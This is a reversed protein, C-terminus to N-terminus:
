AARLQRNQSAYRIWNAVENQDPPNGGRLIRKGKRSRVVPDIVGFLEEADWESLEEPTTVEAAVLFQADHGRLMPVRCVLSAQQQWHLVTEADVRSHDLDSAVTEPDAALLDDVTEIGVAGLRESMRSGISPADVVPDQRSLYFRWESTTESDQTNASSRLSREHSEVDRRSLNITDAPAHPAVSRRRRASPVAQERESRQEFRGPDRHIVTTRARRRRPRSSNSESRPTQARNRRSRPYRVSLDDSVLDTRLNQEEGDRLKASRRSDRRNSPKQGATNAAAIWSTIRSLEYSSASLLIRQGQGTTLFELVDYMLDAPHISALQAPSTIGCGVLLRADFGRLQPVRCALRCEAQWRRITAADISAIGLSDALRNPDQRMLHNVHTVQCGRLRAASVADVSPAQDIPSDVTLFFPSRAREPAGMTSATCMTSSEALAETGARKDSNRSDAHRDGDGIPDSSGRRTTFTDAYFYGDGYDNDDRAWGAFPATRFAPQQAPQTPRSENDVFETVSNRWAIDFNRNADFVEDASKEGYTHPYTGVYREPEYTSKWLPRYRHAVRQAQIQFDRAGSQTLQSAIETSCTLVILQRGRRAYDSLAVALPRIREFGVSKEYHADRRGYDTRSNESDVLERHIELVIPVDRGARALLDGAALRVAISAMARDASHCEEVPQGDLTVHVDSNASRSSGSSERSQTFNWAVHKLRGGSLRVLWRSATESLPAVSPTLRDVTQLREILVRRRRHLAEAYSHRQVDPGDGHIDGVGFQRSRDLRYEYNRALDVPELQTARRVQMAERLCDSLEGHIRDLRGTCQRRDNYLVHHDYQRAFESESTAGIIAGILSERRHQLQNLADVLWREDLRLDEIERATRDIRRISSARHRARRLDERISRLSDCLHVAYTRNLPQTPPRYWASSEGSGTSYHELLWEIHALASEMRLPRPDVLLPMDGFAHISGTARLQDNMRDIAAVFVEFPRRDAIAWSPDEAAGLTEFADNSLLAQRTGRLEIIARRWRMIQTTLDDIQRRQREDAISMMESFRSQVDSSSNASDGPTLESDIAAMWCRLEALQRELRCARDHLMRLQQNSSEDPNWDSIPSSLRDEAGAHPEHHCRTRAIEAEVDALEARLQRDRNAHVNAESGFESYGFGGLDHRDDAVAVGRYTEVSDLGHQICTSVIRALNTHETDIMVQDVLSVPVRLRVDHLHSNDPKSQRDFWSDRPTGPLRAEGRAEFEVTRRGEPTGDQERRVHILGNPDAWVVRGSSSSFMGLPYQPHRAILSDRIFRAIATNGAGVPGCVVNLNESFPGLEVRSLPGHSDIDIRDLLM